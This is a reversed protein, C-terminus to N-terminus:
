GKGKGIDEINFPVRQYVDNIWNAFLLHAHARWHNLPIQGADDDPYYNKPLPIEMGQKVDRMYEDNLTHADYELHNFFYIQSYKTDEILCLGSEDSEALLELSPISSIDEKRTETHRSVPIHFEDDFGRLLVANPKTVRHRFIGFMKQPLEYKPVDYFHKLAAQAGWCVNFTSFVNTQTWDYIASLEEWYKVSEFDLTEVPAGTVILGDFKEDRVEEWPRYFSLLHQRSVNSPTYSGTTLLTLEIQLPTAGILRAFQTETKEKLPMLNLLALRLPRIDQRIADSESMVMVGENELQRRAPLDNPIKIPM